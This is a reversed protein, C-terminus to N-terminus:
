LAGRIFKDPANVVDISWSVQDATKCSTNLTSAAAGLYSFGQRILHSRTHSSNLRKMCAVPRGIVQVQTVHITVGRVVVSPKM